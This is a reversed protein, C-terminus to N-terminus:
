DPLHMIRWHFASVSQFNSDECLCDPNTTCSSVYVSNDWCKLACDLLLYTKMINTIPTISIELQSLSSVTDSSVISAAFSAFGFFVSAKM